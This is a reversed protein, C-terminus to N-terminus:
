ADRYKAQLRELEAVYSKADPYSAALSAAKKMHEVAEKGAGIADYAQARMRPTHAYKSGLDMAVGLYHIAKEYDKARLRAGARQEYPRVDQPRLSCCKAFAEEAADLKGLELVIEGLRLNYDFNDPAAAVAARALKEAEERRNQLKWTVGAAAHLHKAEGSATAAAVVDRPIEARQRPDRKHIVMAGRVFTIREIWDFAYKRFGFSHEAAIFKQLTTQTLGFFYDKFSQTACGRHHPEEWGFHMYADEVIYIGGPRLSPFLTEFAFLIHDARHSGDDVILFPDEGSALLERLFGPDDQSGILVKIREAEHAKCGPNIDIGVISANTFYNAWTRLSGGNFVGIEILRFADARYRSLINDYAVLYDQHLSSKDTNELIGLADLKYESM